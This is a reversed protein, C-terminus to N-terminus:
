SELTETVCNAHILRQVRRWPTDPLSPSLLALGTGYKSFRQPRYGMRWLLRDIDSRGHPTKTEVVAMAALRFADSGRYLSCTLGTDITFRADEHVLTIRSYMTQLVPNLDEVPVDNLHYQSLVGTVFGQGAEGLLVMPIATEMRTKATLGRGTRSKVELFEEGSDVYSRSRVKFRLRRRFAAMRFSILDPTDFYVSRYGFGRRDGIELIRADAPLADVFAEADPIPLLYKRDHRTQLEAQQLLEPLGITPRDGLAGLLRQEDALPVKLAALHAFEQVTSTINM